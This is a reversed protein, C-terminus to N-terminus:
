PKSPSKASAKAATPKPASVLTVAKRPVRNEAMAAQYIIAAMLTACQKMDEPPCRDYVDQTSHHTRSFYELDDQIFQFGPIGVEDFSIHDTSGTSAATVTAAGLDKFPTFWPKFMARAAENGQLYIGRIKGAGNDLNFYASIKNWEPLIAVQTKQEAGAVPPTAPPVVQGFHAKVYAKSGYLGQEEGSWLAMRITRRPTLNCAKLIRMAEMAVASGAANDTAGTGGQWSDLHGGLMVLESRKDSGPLEAVTNYAFLDQTNYTAKLAVSVKPREGAEIMRLLRNYHEVGLALQPVIAVGTDQARVATARITEQSTTDLAASTAAQQVFINGGDGARSAELVLAVGEKLFFDYRAYRLYTDAKYRRMRVQRISDATTTSTSTTSPTPAGIPSDFDANALELLSKEDHRHGEPEFHAKVPVLGGNLIVRGRLKGKYREMDQISTITVPLLEADTVSVSPSWAKPFAELPRVHPATLSAEFKDLTWGRGFPGWQELHAESLGYRTLEERTWENAMKLAPTATLRPGFVDTLHSLTKMVQSRNMGEERIQALAVKMDPQKTTPQNINQQPQAAVAKAEKKPLNSASQGQVNNINGSLCIVAAVILGPVVPFSNM